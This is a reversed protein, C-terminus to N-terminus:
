RGCPSTSSGDSVPRATRCRSLHARMARLTHRPPAVPKRRACLGATRLLPATCLQVRCPCVQPLSCYDIFVGDKEDDGGLKTLTAALRKLKAGSPCPHMESSWGHSLSFKRGPPMGVFVGDHNLDQQRPFPGGHAALRKIYGVKLWQLQVEGCIRAFGHADSYTAEVKLLM